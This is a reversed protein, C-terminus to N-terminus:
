RSGHRGLLKVKGEVRLIQTGNNRCHLRTEGRRFLRQFSLSLGMNSGAVFQGSRLICDLQDRELDLLELNREGSQTAHLEALGGLAEGALRILELQDEFIEFGFLSKGRADDIVCHRDLDRCRRWASRAALRQGIMQRAVLHDM